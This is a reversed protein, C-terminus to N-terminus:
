EYRWLTSNTGGYGGARLLSLYTRTIGDWSTISYTTNNAFDGSVATLINVFPLTEGPAWARVPFANINPAKAGSGSPPTVSNWAGYVTSTAGAIAYCTMAGSSTGGGAFMIGEATDTGNSDHTREISLVMWTASQSFAGIAVWFRNAAGSSFHLTSLSYMNSASVLTRAMFVGTINGVGDSGTGITVYMAPAGIQTTSTTYEFKIFVPATAQLADNFRWIEYGVAVNGTTAYLTNTGFNIQGTDGTQVLGSAGLANHVGSYLNNFNAANTNCMPPASWSYTAM